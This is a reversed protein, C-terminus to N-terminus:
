TSNGTAYRHVNSVAAPLRAPTFKFLADVIGDDTGVMRRMQVEFAEFSHGFAVFRAIQPRVRM